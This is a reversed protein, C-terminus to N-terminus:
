FLGPFGKFIREGVGTLLDALGRHYSERIEVVDPRHIPVVLECLQSTALVSRVASSSLIFYPMLGIDYEEQGLRMLAWPKSIDCAIPAIHLARTSTLKM